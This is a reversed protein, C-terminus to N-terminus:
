SGPLAIKTEEPEWAVPEWPIETKFDLQIKARTRLHIQEMGPWDEGRESMERLLLLTAYIGVDISNAVKKNAGAENWKQYVNGGGIGLLLGIIAVIIVIGTPYYNTSELKMPQDEAHRISKAYQKVCSCRIEQLKEEAWLLRM